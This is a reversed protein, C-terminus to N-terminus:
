KVTHGESDLGQAQGQLGQGQQGGGAPGAPTDHGHQREQLAASLKDYLYLPQKTSLIRRAEMLSHYIAAQRVSLLGVM